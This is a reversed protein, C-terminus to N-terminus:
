DHYYTIQRTEVDSGLAHHTEKRIWNRWDDYAYDFRVAPGHDPKSLIVDGDGNYQFSEGRRHQGLLWVDLRALCGEPTYSYRARMQQMGATLALSVDDNQSEVWRADGISTLVSAAGILQTAERVRRRDDHDYRIRAVEAGGDSEFVTEVPAHQSDFVTRVRTADMTPFIVHHLGHISWGQVGPPLSERKEYWGNHGQVVDDGPYLGEGDQGRRLVVHSEREGSCHRRELCGGDKDFTWQERTEGWAGHRVLIVSLVPGKLVFKDLDYSM